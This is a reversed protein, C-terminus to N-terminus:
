GQHDPLSCTSRYSRETSRNRFMTVWRCSLDGVSTGALLRWSTCFAPHALRSGDPEVSRPFIFERWGRGRRGSSVPEPLDLGLLRSFMPAPRRGPGTAGGRRRARPLPAGARHETFALDEDTGWNLGSPPASLSRFCPTGFVVPVYIVVSLDPLRRELVEPDLPDRYSDKEGVNRLQALSDNSCGGPSLRM